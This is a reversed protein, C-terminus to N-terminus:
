GRHAKATEAERHATPSIDQSFFTILMNQYYEIMLLIGTIQQNSSCIKDVLGLRGIGGGICIILLTNPKYITAKKEKVSNNSIWDSASIYKEFGIDSPKIWEIDKSSYYDPNNMPPTKGTQIEAIFDKLPKCGLELSLINIIYESIIGIPSSV